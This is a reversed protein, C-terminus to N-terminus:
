KLVCTMQKREKEKREYLNVTQKEIKKKKKQM